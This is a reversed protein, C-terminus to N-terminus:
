LLQETSTVKGEVNSFDAVKYRPDIELTKLRKVLEESRDGVQRYWLSKQLNAAAKAWERQEFYKLTNKFQKLRGGLNFALNALVTKIVDPYLKWEPLLRDLVELHEILEPLLEDRAQERDMKTSPGVGHTFGYGVTWPNGKSAPQGIARLIADAPKYGWGWESPPFEEHLESLPDPYAYPRFGEHRELDAVTQALWNEM